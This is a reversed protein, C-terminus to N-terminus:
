PRLGFSVITDETRKALLEVSAADHAARSYVFVLGLGGDDSVDARVAVLHDRRGHRDNEPGAPEMAAILRADPAAAVERGVFNFLVQPRPLGALAKRAEETGDHRAPDLRWTHDLDRRIAPISRAPEGAEAADVFVPSYTIFMGVSASVEVPIPLRRGFGVVDLQATETGSWGAVAHALAALVVEDLRVDDPIVPLRESPIDVTVVAATDNRNDEADIPRDVPIPRYRHWPKGLWHAVALGTEPEMAAGALAAQWALVSTAPSSRVPRGAELAELEHGLGDILLLLSVRDSMLHHAVVLLRQRGHPLDFLVVRFVPGDTLDLSRQVEAAEALLAAEADHPAETSLDVVTVPDAVESAPIVQQTVQGSRGVLRLRLADHRTLLATAASRLHEPTVLTRPALMISTNFHDPNPNNRALFRRQNPALPVPEASAAMGTEPGPDAPDQDTRDLGTAGADVLEELAAVLADARSADFVLDVPIEIGLSRGLRDAMRAAQLSDGGLEFFDADSAIEPFGLLATWTSEVLEAVSAGAPAAAEIDGDGATAQELFPSVVDVDDAVRRTLDTTSVIVVPEDAQLAREFVAVGEEPTFSHIADVLEVESGFDESFAQAARVSMGIDMWDDWAVTTMPLGRRRGRLAFAEAFSNGAVYGVQAFRNHYLTSAVSSSLLVLDPDHGALAAELAVLGHIKAAISRDTEARSRRHIAGGRDAVGAAVIVGDIRGVTAAIRDFLATMADGDTADVATIDVSAAAAEIEAIVDLRRATEPDTSGDAAATPRGSRGTLVLAARYETALHRAISLGVGGLGGVIVYVGGQRLPTRDPRHGAPRRAVTPVWRRGGRLAVVADPRAAAERVQLQEALADQDAESSLGHPLDILRTTIRSYELPIVRVPGLLAAASPRVAEEGTVSCAGVTVVDLHVPGSRSLGGLARACALVSHLGRSLAREIPPEDDISAPDALLAHVVRDPATGTAAVTEFVEAIADDNDPDFRLEAAGTSPGGPGSDAIAVAVSDGTARLRAALAHGVSHDPALLLTSTQRRDVPDPTEPQPDRQWSPVYLWDDIPERTPGAAPRDTPPGLEPLALVHRHTPLWAEFREFPYTPLPVRRRPAPTAEEHDPDTGEVRDWDIAAGATWLRGVAELAVVRDDRKQSPRRMTPIAATTEPDACARALATLTEGPGLELFVAPGDVAAVCDAFRVPRLIQNAWFGPDTAEADRIPRGTVNSVLPITPPRLTVREVAARFATAAGTMMQSHFAHSTRLLQVSVGRGDLEAQLAEILHTPGSAVSRGPANHAALALDDTLLPGLEGPDLAVSLMTGPAMSQMLRGREAVVIAADEETLIGAEVAAAYEGISHGIVVDPGLGWSRFLAAMARQVAFLAPQTMATAMLRAGDDGTLFLLERLDVGLPALFRDALRDLVERFVPETRYLDAGMMPHQSGQGSFTWVARPRDGVPLGRVVRHSGAPGTAAGLGGGPGAVVARRHALAPRGVRLTHAADSLSPRDPRDLATVLDAVRRDAATATKASVTLVIPQEPDEIAAPQPAPAEELVVHANTGGIGFASVGARRPHDGAPWPRRETNVFFPGSAFDIAPNPREFHLSPPIERHRLTLVTKIFGTIGAASDTHGVNTKVSGIACYGRRDTGARFARTLAAIEIPDGLLTGTGHTEVYGITDPSVDAIAQAAVIVATQGDESPATYTMKNGADNNVASGRIVALVTDGDDEADALRKLAVVGCGQGLTTGSADADFARCRGTPSLIMGQQYFYGVGQRYNVSVGGALAMSCEDALLSQVAVHVAVLSTSCATQVTLSPGSLGLHHSVRTTLFDRDLGILQDFAGLSDGPDAVGLLSAYDCPNSGGFVGVSQGTDFPDYGASELAEYCTELFIRSQPDMVAAQRPTFGFFAADFRDHDALRTGRRVFNDARYRAEPIGLADLEDDEATRLCDRGNRLNDWFADLNPAEPFRGAMGVVAIFDDFPEDVEGSMLEGGPGDGGPGDLGPGTGDPPWRLTPM